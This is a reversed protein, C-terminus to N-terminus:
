EAKLVRAMGRAGAHAHARPVASAACVASAVNRPWAAAFVSTTALFMAVPTVRLVLDLASPLV